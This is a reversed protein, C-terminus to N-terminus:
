RCAQTAFLITYLSRNVNMTFIMMTVDPIRPSVNCATCQKTNYANSPKPITQFVYQYWDEVDQELPTIATVTYIYM